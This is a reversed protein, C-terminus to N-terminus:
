ISKKFLKNISEKSLFPTMHLIFDSDIDDDLLRSLLKDLSEQSLFPLIGILKDIDKKNEIVRDIVRDLSENSLFPALGFIKDFNDGNLVKDVIKDLSDKSLFPAIGVILEDDIDNNNILYDLTDNNLFPALGIIKETSMDNDLDRIIEDLSESSLFPALEIINDAGEGLSHLKEKLIDESVFPALHTLKDIKIKAKEVKSIIKDIKSTKIIPAIKVLDDLDYEEDNIINAVNIYEKNNIDKIVKDNISRKTKGGNLVDDITIDFLESINLLTDIDPISEGREWKSVAQHTVNLKSALEAQTYDSEKRLKSIYAGIVRSDLM